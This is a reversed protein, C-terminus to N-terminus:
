FEVDVYVPSHDTADLAEIDEIVRYQSVKIGEGLAVIHDYSYHKDNQTKKGHYRGDEGLVPDGHHTSVDDKVQALDHLHDIGNAQYVEFVKSSLLANMDGFAFVPCNYRNHLHKMLNTLQLANEARIVEHEEGIRWWFHTNCVAFVKGDKELVAWTIGKSIDPTNELYEYGYNLLKYEKKIAMPVYNINNYLETGVPYYEGSLWTYLNGKYWGSTYEQMGLIDPSYKKFIGYLLDERVNVPNGFYDGWINSTMIRM